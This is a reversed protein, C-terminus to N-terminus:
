ATEARFISGLPLDSGFVDQLLSAFNSARLSDLGASSISEDADVRRDLVEFLLNCVISTTDANANFDFSSSEAAVTTLRATKMQSGFRAVLEGIRKKGMATLLGNEWTFPEATGM